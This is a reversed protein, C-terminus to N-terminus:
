AGSVLGTELLRDIQDRVTAAVDRYEMGLRTRSKETELEFPRGVNAHVYRWGFGQFPGFLYLLLKPLKRSPQPFRGPYERAVIRNIETMSMVPGSVIHRGEASENLAARVHAEAVDRVDVIGFYLDPVGTKYTGDLLQVMTSTSTSDNRTSLTPGLVFSPNIAVLRWREQGGAIRWAEREAETKSYNYPLYTLSSKRNWDVESFSPVKVGPKELPDSMISAVSSTLVVRSVTETHDAATLVNRTGLVAPEVLESQPDKVDFPVFPSAMHFVTDCGDAAEEFSGEEM